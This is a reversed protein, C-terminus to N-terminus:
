QINQFDLDSLEQNVEIEKQFWQNNGSKASIGYEEIHVKNIYLDKKNRDIPITIKKWLNGYRDKYFLQLEFYSEKEAMTISDCDIIKTDIKGSSSINLQFGEQTHNIVITNEKPITKLKPKYTNIIEQLLEENNDLVKLLRWKNEEDNYAFVKQHYDDKQYYIPDANPNYNLDEKKILTALIHFQSTIEKFSSQEIDMEELNPNITKPVLYFSINGLKNEGKPNYICGYDPTYFYEGNWAYDSCHVLSSFDYDTPMFTEKIIITSNEEQKKDSKCSLALSLLIFLLKTKM